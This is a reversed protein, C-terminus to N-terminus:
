KGIFKLILAVAAEETLNDMNLVLQYNRLDYRSVGAFSRIYNDREKDIQDILLGAQEPTLNQKRAVREVRHERSATIFIDLKNPCDKLVFFGSRGAIVCPGEAAIAQLIESEAKFIDASTVDPRFETLFKEDKDILMSMKPVPAVMQIFDSIWTKKEGKLKEIGSATLSFRKMLEQVLEKDSYRVNLEQALLRGVTRGGSGLERSITIVFNQTTDM